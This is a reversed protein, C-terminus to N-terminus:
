AEAGAEAGAAFAGAEAGAAAVVPAAPLTSPRTSSSGLSALLAAGPSKTKMKARSGSPGRIGSAAIFIATASRGLDNASVSAIAIDAAVVMELAARTTTSALTLLDPLAMACGPSKDPALAGTAGPARLTRTVM